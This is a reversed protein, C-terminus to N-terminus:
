GDTFGNDELKIVMRDGLEPPLVGPAWRALIALRFDGEGRSSDITEYEVPQEPAFLRFIESLTM